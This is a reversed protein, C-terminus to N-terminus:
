RAPFQRLAGVAGGFQGLCPSSGDTRKRRGTRRGRRERTRERDVGDGAGTQPQARREGGLEAREAMSTKLVRAGTRGAGVAGAQHSNVSEARPTPRRRGRGPPVHKGAARGRGGVREGWGARTRSSHPCAGRGHRAHTASSPMRAPSVPGGRDRGPEHGGGRAPPSRADRDGGRRAAVARSTVVTRARTRVRGPQRGPRTHHTSPGARASIMRTTVSMEERDRRGRLHGGALRQDSHTNASTRIQQRATGAAFRAGDDTGAAPRGRHHWDATPRGRDAQQHVGPQRASAGASSRARPRRQDTPRRRATSSSASFM